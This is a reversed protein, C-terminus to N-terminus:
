KGQLKLKFMTVKCGKILQDCLIGYLLYEAADIDYLDHTRKHLQPFSAGIINAEARKM